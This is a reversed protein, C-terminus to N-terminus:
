SINIKKKNMDHIVDIIRLMWWSEKKKKKEKKSVDADVNEMRKEKWKASDTERRKNLQHGLPKEKENDNLHTARKEYHYCFAHHCIIGSEWESETKWTQNYSWTSLKYTPKEETGVLWRGWEDPAKKRVGIHM